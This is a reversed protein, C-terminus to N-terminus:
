SRTASLFLWEITKALILLDREIDRDDRHEIARKNCV